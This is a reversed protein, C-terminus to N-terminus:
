QRAVSVRGVLVNQTSLGENDSLYFMPRPQLSLRLDMRSGPLMVFSDGDANEVPVVLEPAANPWHLLEVHGDGRVLCNWGTQGCANETIPERANGDSDPVFQLRVETYSDAPVTETELLTDPILEGILDIQRTPKKATSRNRALDRWEGGGRQSVSTSDRTAHCVCARNPRIAYLDQMGDIEPWSGRIAGNTSPQLCAPPPNGAKVIVGGNGNNFAGVFCSDACGVLGFVAFLVAYPLAASTLKWRLKPKSQAM